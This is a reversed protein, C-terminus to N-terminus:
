NDGVLAKAFIRQKKKHEIIDKELNLMENIIEPNKSEMKYAKNLIAKANDYESLVRLCKAHNFYVKAPIKMLEGNETFDYIKKASYCGKRPKHTLTYCILLNSHLKLSLERHKEVEGKSNLFVKELKAVATNYDKIANKFDHKVFLKKGKECLAMCYKYVEPFKKQEEESLKEYTITAGTNVIGILEVEFLVQANPPIRGIFCNKGYAYDPHILFQSKEDLKMSQVAYDLGPIVKGNNIVFKLPKNRVYTSDFPQDNYELYGNYNITVSAFEMPREGNGARVIKKKIKGNPLLNFM